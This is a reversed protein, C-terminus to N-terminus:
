PEPATRRLFVPAEPTSSAADYAYGGSTFDLLDAHKRCRRELMYRVMMGRARKAFFSLIRYEGRAWDKFVPTIVTLGLAQQDVARFYEQSALNVLLKTRLQRAQEALARAPTDAWYAYLNGGRPNKLRTGMELRYPQINDLPRLLGYLGSLIRLHTQAYDLERTTLTDADLGQYVDGRFAFLAPRVSAPPPTVSWEQFRAHNLTALDDSISMLSKLQAPKKRAMLTALAAAEGLFEPETAKATLARCEFDLTKAPSIVALM